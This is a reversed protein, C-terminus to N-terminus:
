NSQFLIVNERLHAGLKQVDRMLLEEQRKADALLPEEKPAPKPPDVVPTSEEPERVKTQEEEVPNGSFAVSLTVAILAVMGLSWLLAPRWPRGAGAVRPEPKPLAAVAEMIAECSEEDPEAPPSSLRQELDRTQEFFSRCDACGQVHRRLWGSSCDPADSRTQALYCILRKM